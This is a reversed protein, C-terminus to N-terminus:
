WTEYRYESIFEHGNYKKRKVKLLRSEDYEYSTEDAYTTNLMERHEVNGSTSNKFVETGKSELEYHQTLDKINGINDSNLFEFQEATLTVMNVYGTQRFSQKYTTGQDYQYTVKSFFVQQVSQEYVYSSFFEFELRETIRGNSDYTEISTYGLEGDRYGKTLSKTDFYQVEFLTTDFEFEIYKSLLDNEYVLTRIFDVQPPEGHSQIACGICNSSILQTNENFHFENVLMLGIPEILSESNTSPVRWYEKISKWNTTKVQDLNFDELTSEPHNYTQGQCAGILLTLFYILLLNKM